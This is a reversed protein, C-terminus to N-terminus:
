KIRQGDCLSHMAPSNEYDGQWNDNVPPLQGFDGAIIFKISPFSRKILIFLQYFDRIMMSVEDIFIYEINEMKAFLARRNSKFKYYLSHITNGGILRAGKTTPSFALYKKNRQKLERIINNVLFTKGTGAFGDIHMSNNTDVIRCAEDEASGTYDNQINWKLDFISLDIEQERCLGGFAEFTLPKALEKQFKPVKKEDDWYENIEIPVKSAYCVDEPQLPLQM